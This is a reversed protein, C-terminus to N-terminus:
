DYSAWLDASRVSSAYEWVGPSSYFALVCLHEPTASDGYGFSLAAYTSRIPLWAVNALEDNDEIYVRSCHECLFGLNVNWILCSERKGGGLFTWDGSCVDELNGRM